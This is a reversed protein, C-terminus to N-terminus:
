RANLPTCAVGHLFGAVSAGARLANAKSMLVVFTAQFVDEADQEHRLVRRSVNLVLQGHRRVLVAFAAHDRHIIFSELLERDDRPDTSPPAIQRLHRVVAALSTDSM